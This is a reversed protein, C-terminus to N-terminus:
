SISKNWVIKKMDGHFNSIGFCNCVDNLLKVEEQIGITYLENIELIVQLGESTIKCIM